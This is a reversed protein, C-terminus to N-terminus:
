PSAPPFLPAPELQAERHSVASNHKQLYPIRLLPPPPPSVYLHEVAGLRRYRLFPPAIRRANVDRYNQAIRGFSTDLTKKEIGYRLTAEVGKWSELGFVGYKIEGLGEVMSEFCGVVGRGGGSIDRQM